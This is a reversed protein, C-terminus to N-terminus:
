KPQPAMLHPQNNNVLIHQFFVFIRENVGHLLNVETSIASFPRKQGIQLTSQNNTIRVIDMSVNISNLYNLM